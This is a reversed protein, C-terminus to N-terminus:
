LRRYRLAYTQGDNTLRQDCWLRILSLFSRLRQSIKGSIEAGGRPRLLQCGFAVDDNKSRMPDTYSISELANIPSAADQDIRRVCM